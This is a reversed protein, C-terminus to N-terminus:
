GSGLFPSKVVGHNILAQQQESEAARQELEAAMEDLQANLPSAPDIAAIERLRKAPTRLFEAESRPPMTTGSPLAEVNTM